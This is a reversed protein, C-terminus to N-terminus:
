AQVGADTDIGRQSKVNHVGPELTRKATALVKYRMRAPEVRVGKRDVRVLCLTPAQGAEAGEAVRWAPQIHRRGGNVHGATALEGKRQIQAAPLTRCWLACLSEPLSAM